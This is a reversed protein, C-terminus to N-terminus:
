RPAKMRRFLGDAKSIHIGREGDTTQNKNEDACNFIVSFYVTVHDSIVKGDIHADTVEWIPNGDEDKETTEVWNDSPKFTEDGYYVATIVSDLKTNAKTMTEVPLEDTTIQAVM